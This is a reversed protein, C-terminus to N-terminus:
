ISSIYMLGFSLHISAKRINLSGHKNNVDRNLIKSVKIFPKAEAGLKDYIISAEIKWNNNNIQIQM